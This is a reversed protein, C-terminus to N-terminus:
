AGIISSAAGGQITSDLYTNTGSQQKTSDRPTTPADLYTGHSSCSRHGFRRPGHGALGQAEGLLGQGGVGRLEGALVKGLVLEEGAQGQLGEELGVVAADDGQEVVEGLQAGVEAQVLDRM